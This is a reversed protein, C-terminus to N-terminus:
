GYHSVVFLGATDKIEKGAGALCLRGFAEVVIIGREVVCEPDM